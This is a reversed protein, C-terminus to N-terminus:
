IPGIYTADTLRARSLQAESLNAGSLNAASLNAGSLNAGVLWLPGPRNLLDFIQDPTLDAM